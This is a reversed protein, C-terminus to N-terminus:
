LLMDAKQTRPAEENTDSLINVEKAQESLKDYCRNSMELIPARDLSRYLKLKKFRAVVTKLVSIWSVIIDLMMGGLV